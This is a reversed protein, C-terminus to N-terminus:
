GKEQTCFAPCQVGSSAGEFLSAANVLPEKEAVPSFVLSLEDM